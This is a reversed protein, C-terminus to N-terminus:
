DEARDAEGTQPNRLKVLAPAAYEWRTTSDPQEDASSMKWGLRSLVNKMPEDDSSVECVTPYEPLELRAALLLRAPVSTSRYDAATWIALVRNESKLTDHRAAVAGIINRKNRTAIMVTSGCHSCMRWLLARNTRPRAAKILRLTPWFDMPTGVERFTIDAGLDVLGSDGPFYSYRDPAPLWSFAARNSKAAM